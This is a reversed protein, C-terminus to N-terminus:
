LSNAKDPPVRLYALSRRMIERAVPAAVRGGYYHGKSPAFATVICVLRPEALPGGCLFSAVYEGPVYGGGGPVPVQATGTKGFMRYNDLRARKGTGRQNAVVEHLVRDRFAIVTSEPMVRRIMKPEAVFIDEQTVPDLVRSVVYPKMLRGGNALAAFASVLQLPTSCVEHGMPVSTITYTDNWRELSTVLGADECPLDIGTRSGFGFLTETDFLRRKGLRLGLIAMGINSSRYVVEEFSLNGYAHHDRLRRRRYVFLGNHCFIKEGFHTEKEALARVAVFPKFISGPEIPYSIARNVRNEEPCEGFRRPDYTPRNAMAVIAGTDPDMLICTSWRPAHEEQLDDLAEEVYQQITANITLLLTRGHRALKFNGDDILWVGRRHRGATAVMRKHGDEGSLQADYFYEIGALGGIDRGKFGLVHSALRGQPYRRVREMEVVVGPIKADRVRDAQEATARRMIWAHRRHRRRLLHQYLEAADLDLLGALKGSVDQLNGVEAVFKPDAYISPVESNGALLLGAEDYVSGRRARLWVHMTSQRRSLAAMRAHSGSQLYYVRFLLGCLVACLSAVVITSRFNVRRAASESAPTPKSLPVDMHTASSM